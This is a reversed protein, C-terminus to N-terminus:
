GRDRPSPSTYLLCDNNHDDDDDCWYVLGTLAAGTAGWRAVAVVTAGSRLRSSISLLSSSSSSSSPSRLLTATSLRATDVVARKSKLTLSWRQPHRLTMLGHRVVRTPTLSWVHKLVVGGGSAFSMEAHHHHHHLRDFQRARGFSHDASRGLRPSSATESFFKKPFLAPLLTPVQLSHVFLFFAM